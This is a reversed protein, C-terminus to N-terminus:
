FIMSCATDQYLDKHQLIWQRLETVQEEYTKVEFVQEDYSGIKPITKDVRETEFPRVIVNYQGIKQAITSLLKFKTITNITRYDILGKKNSDICKEVLKSLCLTTTGNWIHQTFGNCYGSQRMFWNFLSAGNPNLECGIISTRVTLHGSKRVEGALKTKGYVTDDFACDTSIHILKFKLKDGIDALLHPLEANLQQMHNEQANINQPIIGVCNIFYDINLEKIKATLDEKTINLFDVDHRDWGVINYKGTEQLYNFMMHGLMGTIGIILIKKRNEM